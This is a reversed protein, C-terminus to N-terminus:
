TQLAACHLLVGLTQKNNYRTQPVSFIGGGHDSLEVVFQNIINRHRRPWTVSVDPANKRLASHDLSM